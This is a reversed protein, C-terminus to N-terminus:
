WNKEGILTIKKTFTKTFWLYNWWFQHINLWKLYWKEARIFQQKLKHFNWLFYKCNVCIKVMKPSVELVKIKAQVSFIPWCRYQWWIQHNRKRRLIWLFHGGDGNIFRNKSICFRSFYGLPGTSFQKSLMLAVWAPCSRFCMCRAVFCICGNNHSLAGM